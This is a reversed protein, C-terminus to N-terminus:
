IVCRARVGLTYVSPARLHLCASSLVIFCLLPSPSPCALLQQIFTTPSPRKLLAFLVQASVQPSPPLPLAAVQSEPLFLLGARAAPAPVPSLAQHPSPLAFPGM